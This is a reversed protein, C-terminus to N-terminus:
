MSANVVHEPTRGAAVDLIQRAVRQRMEILSERSLFAAHPSLIVRDDQFLPQSLDPPEPDFVDLGAGALRGASVADWLAAHDILGGRSTNILFANPSMQALRTADFLHHTAETLPAHLSVYDSRELLEDLTVMVSGTGYDNGSPSHAVVQLGVGLAMMRLRRAIRGFGVLGLTQESLRRMSAGSLLDYIGQKTQQHYHAIGRAHALLLGLAHQAVEEVCYDPVNTVVMGRATAAPIDINDLGIGLRAIHRCHTASNIVRETVPAWCAAIAVAPRALEVLTQEEGDTALAVEFGDPKLFEREIEVDGWPADTILVRQAAM